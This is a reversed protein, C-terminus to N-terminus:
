LNVSLGVTVSKTLPYDEGSSKTTEPDWTKFKSWTVLNSGSVFVRVNALRLKNVFNKNLTYGFDINKLRIYRGDRMWYTSTQQNNENKGYTLRPMSANPNANAPIGLQAATDTDVYRDNIMDQFINGWNNESFAFVSMGNIAFTSKGVGQFHFNIDFDKWVFSAGIGYGLNPRTTGGIAVKDKDDIIGDGNVDAYKIDGPQVSNWTQKPSNRIDEYDEFLGLSVLGKLQNVRYGRDYLYPYIQTEEDKEIVENKSFTINGRLTMDVPGLKQNFSFNGDFGKVNTQGVNARPSESLGVTEPLFNRRMYIGTRREYFYDMTLSFKQDFANLDFGIDTKEVEEWTIGMSSPNSFYLRKIGDANEGFGFNYTLDKDDHRRYGIRSLYPFRILDNGEMLKDNGVKGQSFRIKFMNLWTQSNKIFPEESVNWALSYAPFFGFREGDSFNESGTYGFNFNAYYRHNWDYSAQGALSQNRFAVGNQINDGLDVTQKKIDNTFRIVAGLHHKNFERGWNLLLELNTSRDGKGESYQYMDTAEKRRELVLKGTEQNRGNSKYLAPLTRRTINTENNTNYGFKGTAKLGETIFSLDQELSVNTQLNNKWMEGYGSQTAATWPNIWFFGEEKELNISGLSPAYQMGDEEFYLPTSLANYGFLSKWIDESKISPQNQTELSGGIGVKLLTTKTIDMDVNMRYNWRNYDANSDYKDRLTKDTKYMGEDQVFSTSVYYRATSGGGSLNVNARYSMASNKLLLDSWDVNPYLNPDAQTRILDIEEDRFIRGLNRTIQAENALNAYTVGDVFKPTITRANYSSEVKVDIKVKGADGRKTTILVVGNAGKSGYIATASADKLVVFKDIDEINLDNLSTHEFGDVIILAGSGAGFTSIGRIWFESTNNGPQGSTQQTIIGPVQGALANSLNSSSYRKIPDMEVNTIAGTLNLKTQTGMATVVVEELVSSTSEKMTVDVTTQEKILIETPEFGIYSFVLRNYPELKITYKGDVDTITGMGPINKVIINVGPLPEGTNDVVTGSVTVMEQAFLMVPFILMLFILKLHNKM